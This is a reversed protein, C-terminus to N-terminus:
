SRGRQKAALCHTFLEGLTLRESWLTTMELGYEDKVDRALTELELSDPMNKSTYISRYVNLIKDEPRIKLKEEKPFGFADIFTTLFDRIEEKPADPFARRWSKGECIRDGYPSPLRSWRRKYEFWSLIFLPLLFLVLILNM